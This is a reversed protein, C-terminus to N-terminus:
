SNPKEKVHTGPVSGLNDPKAVLAKVWRALESFLTHARMHTLKTKSHQPQVWSESLGSCSSQGLTM